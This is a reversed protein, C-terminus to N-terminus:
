TTWFVYWDDNKKKNKKKKGKGSAKSVSESEEDKQATLIPDPIDEDSSYNSWFLKFLIDKMGVCKM